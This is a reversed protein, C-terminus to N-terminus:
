ERMLQFLISFGFPLLGFVLTFFVWRLIPSMGRETPPFLIRFQLVHVSQVGIRSRTLHRSELLKAAPADPGSSCGIAGRVPM